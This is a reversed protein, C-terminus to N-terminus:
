HKGGLFVPQGCVVNAEKFFNRFRNSQRDAGEAGCTRHMRVSYRNASLGNHHTLSLGYSKSPSEGLRPVGPEVPPQDRECTSAGRNAHLLFQHAVGLDRGGHIGVAVGQHGGLAVGILLDHSQREHGRVRILQRRSGVRRANYGCLARGGFHLFRWLYLPGDV